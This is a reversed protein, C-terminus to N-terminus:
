ARLKATAAALRERTEPKKAEGLSRAMEKMFSLKEWRAAATKRDRALQRALDAPPEVIRPATDLEVM